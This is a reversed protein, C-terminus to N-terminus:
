RSGSWPARRAIRLTRAREIDATIVWRGRADLAMGVAELEDTDLCRRGNERGLELKERFTYTHRGVRHRDFASVSGFDERCSRCVNM